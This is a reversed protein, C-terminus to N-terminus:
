HSSGKKMYLIKIIHISYKINFMKIIHCFRMVDLFMNILKIIHIMNRIEIIRLTKKM